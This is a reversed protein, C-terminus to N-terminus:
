DPLPELRVTRFQIVGGESQLAIRGAVQECGTAENVVKGNVCLTLKDGCLTIEYRNWEGPPKENSELKSLGALHGLKEHDVERWRAADGTVPFGEFTWIDGADGSKLQAEVCRPLVKPPGTIRMLVGSNGPTDGPPWRWEVVLRFNKYRDKTALYGMPEGKCVLIGDEVRWVDEMKLDPKELFFTWGSLDRGNFLDISAPEDAWGRAAGCVILGLVLSRLQRYLM